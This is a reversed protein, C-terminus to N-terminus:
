FDNGGSGADLSASPMESWVTGDYYKLADVNLDLWLDGTNPSSPQTLSIVMANSGAGSTAQQDLAIFNADLEGHTLPAGKTTRLTLVAM